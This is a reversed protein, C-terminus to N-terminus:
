TIVSEGKVDQGKKKKGIGATRQKLIKKGGYYNEM